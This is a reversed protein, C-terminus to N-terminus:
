FRELTCLIGSLGTFVQRCWGSTGILRSGSLPLCSRTIRMHASSCSFSGALLAGGIGKLWLPFVPSWGFRKADLPMIVIWLIFGIVIGYVVYRDWREQNGAGPQMYREALLAPDKRYLYLITSYCLVIFWISFVWGEPWTFNGSLLFLLAPFLLIYLLVFAVKKEM